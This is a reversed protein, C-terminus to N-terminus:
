TQFKEEGNANMM